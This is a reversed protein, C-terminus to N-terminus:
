CLDDRLTHHHLGLAHTHHMLHQLGLHEQPQPLLSFPLLLPSASASVALFPPSVTSFLHPLLLLLLLLQLSLGAFAQNTPQFAFSLLHSPLSLPQYLQTHCRMHLQSPDHDHFLDHFLYQALGLVPRLHSPHHLVSLAWAMELPTILHTLHCCCQLCHFGWWYHDWFGRWANVVRYSMWCCCLCHYGGPSHSLHSSGPHGVLIVFLGISRLAASAEVLPPFLVWGRHLMWMSRWYMCPFNQSGYTPAKTEHWNDEWRRHKICM